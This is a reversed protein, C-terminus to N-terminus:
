HLNGLKKNWMSLIDLKLTKNVEKEAKHIACNKESELIITIVNQNYIKDEFMKHAKCVTFSKRTCRPEREHWSDIAYVKDGEM